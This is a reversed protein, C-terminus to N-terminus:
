ILYKAVISKLWEVDYKYIKEHQERSVFILWEPNNYNGGRRSFIHHIEDANVKEWTLEYTIECFRYLDYDIDLGRSEYAIIRYDKKESASTYKEKLESVDDNNEIIKKLDVAQKNKNSFKKKKPKNWFTSPENSSKVKVIKTKKKKVRITSSPTKSKNWGVKEKKQKNWVTKEFKKVM